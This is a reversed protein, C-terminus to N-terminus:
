SWTLKTGASGDSALHFSGSAPTVGFGVSLTAAHTGDTVTLVGSHYTVSTSIGFTLDTFDIVDSAAFSEITSGNLGATLDKFDIGTFSAGNLIGGGGSGAITQGNATASLFDAGASGQILSPQTAAIGLSQLTITATSGNAAEDLHFAGATYSGSLALTGVTTSGNSLTLTGTTTTVQKYSVATVGEVDIQDGVSFGSITGTPLKALMLTGNPGAFSIATSDAAGLGLTSGETILLLGTGSVSPASSYPDAVATGTLDIFLAGGGVVAITGGAAINGYISGSLAATAGAAETIAGKAAIAPSGIKILSSNDVAIVNNSANAILSGVQITSSAVALMTGGTLIAAGSITASGGGGVQWTGSVSASGATLKAKSDLALEGISSVQSVSVEGTVAVTGTLLVDGSVSFSAAAGNGGITTAAQLGSTSGAITVANGSGPVAAPPPTTTTDTWNNATSWNGGSAGSWSYADKSTSVAGTGAAAPPTQVTIIAYGSAASVDVHFLYSAFNGALTLTGVTTSGNILTLTGRTSTTQKFSVATVVQDVKIENGTAAFGSITGTPLAGALELFSSGATVYGSGTYSSYDLFAIAASDSAALVLGGGIGMMAESSGVDITGSGSISGAAGAYGEILANTATLTGNVVLNAALTTAITGSSMM